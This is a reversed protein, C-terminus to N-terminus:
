LGHQQKFGHLAIIAEAYRLKSGEVWKTADRLAETDTKLTGECDKVEEQLDRLREQIEATNM